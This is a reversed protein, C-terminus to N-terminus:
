RNEKGPTRHGTVAEASAIRWVELLSDAVRRAHFLAERPDDGRDLGDQTVALALEDLADDGPDDYYDIFEQPVEADTDRLRRAVAGAGAYYVRMDTHAALAAAAQSGSAAVWSAAGHFSYAGLETSWDALDEEDMHLSRAVHLLKPTAERVVRGLSLWLEAAPDHPFRTLLTGYAVLEVAHSQYEIQVLRRLPEVTGPGTVPTRTLPSGPETGAVAQRVQDALSKADIRTHASMHKGETPASPHRQRAPLTRPEHRPPRSGPVLPRGLATAGTLPVRGPASPPVHPATAEDGADEEPGRGPRRAEPRTLRALLRGRDAKGSVTLPLHPVCVIRSPVMPAPLRDRVHESLHRVLAAPEAGPARVVVAGLHQGPGEGLVGVAAERVDPHACLVAEVEGLEVRFGRLKVQRDKRGHFELVGDARRRVIDGTRYLRARADGGFRDAVFREATRRPDNLYGLAVGDGGLWLEGEQGPAALGGDPRVVYATTAPVETGIPVLQADEPLERVVYSTSIVSNETPGYGNVLTDPAGHALVARVTGPSVTDGGVMLCRLGSFLHPATQAHVHFLGASLWLTTIRHDRLSQALAETDLLDGPEPLVLCAGNLLTCFVEYCSVDFAPSATALLRDGPRPVAPHDATVFRVLGRHSCLVGKPVGTSGSTYILYAADTAATGVPRSAGSRPPQARDLDRTTVRAVAPVPSPIETEPETVLCKPSADEVLTALRHRPTRPDVPLYVAGAALVALVTTVWPASPELLVAVVDGRRVGRARLCATARRTREHLERFTWRDDGRVLAVSDPTRRVQETFLEPLVADRPYGAGTDDRAAACGHPALGTSPM